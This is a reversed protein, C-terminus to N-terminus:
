SSEKQLRKLVEMADEARHIPVFLHDHRLAAVVNCAIGENALATAVAATLGVATLSSEVTLTIWAFQNEAADSESAPVIVSLGEAERFWAVSNPPVADTISRFVFAEPHLIPQLTALLISLENM